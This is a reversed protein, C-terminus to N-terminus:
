PERCTTGGEANILAELALGRQECHILAAMAGTLPRRGRELDSIRSQSLGWREALQSQTLGLARRLDRVSM